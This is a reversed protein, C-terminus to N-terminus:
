QKTPARSVVALKHYKAFVIEPTTLKDKEIASSSAINANKKPHIPICRPAGQNVQLGPLPTFPHHHPALPAPKNPTSSHHYPNSFQRNYYSTNCGSSYADAHDGYDYDDFDDQNYGYSYDQEFSNCSDHRHNFSSCHDYKQGSSQQQELAALRALIASQQTRLQQVEAQLHVKDQKLQKVDLQLEDVVVQLLPPDLCFSFSKLVALHKSERV